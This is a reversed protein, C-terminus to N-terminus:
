FTTNANPCCPNGDNSAPNNCSNLLLAALIIDNFTGKSSPACSGDNRGKENSMLLLLLLLNYIEDQNM